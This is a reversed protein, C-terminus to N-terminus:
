RLAETRETALQSVLAQLVAVSEKLESIETQKQKLEARQEEVKENLGQIAALAVGDADVTSIHKEDEGVQFAAFFDQAMPGIHRVSPDQSKWNWTKVPITALRELVQRPNVETLNAKSNRDSLTTWASSGANVRLFVSPRKALYTM